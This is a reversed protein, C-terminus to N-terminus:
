KKNIAQKLSEDMLQWLGELLEKEDKENLFPLDIKKNMNAIVEDKKSAFLKYILGYLVEVIKNM